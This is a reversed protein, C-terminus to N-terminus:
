GTRADPLDRGVQAGGHQRLGAADGGRACGPHGARELARHGPVVGAPQRVAMAILGPKDSPIIEGGIQTVLAAAERLM